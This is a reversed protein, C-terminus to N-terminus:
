RARRCSARATSRSRGTSGDLSRFIAFEQYGPQAFVARRLPREPLLFPPLGKREVIGLSAVYTQARQPGEEDRLHTYLAGNSLIWRLYWQPPAGVAEYLEVTRGDRDTTKRLLRSEPMGADHAAPVFDYSRAGYGGALPASLEPLRDLDDPLDLGFTPGATLFSFRIKEVM